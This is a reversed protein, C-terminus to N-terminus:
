IDETLKLTQNALKHTCDSLYQISGDKIYFHCRTNEPEFDEGNMVMSIQEDTMTKTGQVLVSPSLTPNTLSNNWQWLAGKENRNQVAAGHYQQCGECWFMLVGTNTLCAVDAM